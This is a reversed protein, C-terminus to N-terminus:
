SPPLIKKTVCKLANTLSFHFNIALTYLLIKEGRIIHSKLHSKLINVNTGYVCNDMYSNMCNMDATYSMSM